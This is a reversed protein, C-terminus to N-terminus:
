VFSVAGVCGSTSLSVSRYVYDFRKAGGFSVYHPHEGFLVSLLFFILNLLTVGVFVRLILENVVFHARLSCNVEDSRCNYTETILENFDQVGVYHGCKM